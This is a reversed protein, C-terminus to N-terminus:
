LHKHSKIAPPGDVSTANNRNDLSVQKDSSNHLIRVIRSPQLSTTEQAAASARELNVHTDRRRRTNRFRLIGSDWLPGSKPQRPQSRVHHEGSWSPGRPSDPPRSKARAWKRLHEQEQRQQRRDPSATLQCFNKSQQATVIITLELPITM